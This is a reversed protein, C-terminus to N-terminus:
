CSLESKGALAREILRRRPQVKKLYDEATQFKDVLIQPKECRFKLENRFRGSGKVIINYDTDSIDVSEVSSVGRVTEKTNRMRHFTREASLEFTIPVGPSVRLRAYVNEDKFPTIHPNTGSGM